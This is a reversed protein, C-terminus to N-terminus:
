DAHGMEPASALGNDLAGRMKLLANIFTAPQPILVTCEVVDPKIVAEQANQMRVM